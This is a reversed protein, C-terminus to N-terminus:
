AAIQRRVRLLKGSQRRHPAADRRDLQPLARRCRVKLSTARVTLDPQFSVKQWSLIRPCRNDSQVLHGM